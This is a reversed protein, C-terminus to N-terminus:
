SYSLRLTNQYGYFNVIAKLIAQSILRNHNQRSKLCIPFPASIRGIEAAHSMAKEVSNDGAGTSSEPELPTTCAVSTEESAHLSIIKLAKPNPEQNSPTFGPGFGRRRSTRVCGSRGKPPRSRTASAGARSLRALSHQTPPLLDFGRRQPVGCTERHADDGVRGAGATERRAPRDNSAHQRGLGEPPVAIRIRVPFRREASTILGRSNGQMTNRMREILRNCSGAPTDLRKAGRAACNHSSRWPSVKILAGWRTRITRAVTFGVCRPPGIVTM